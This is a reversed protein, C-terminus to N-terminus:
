GRAGRHDGNKRGLPCLLWWRRGGYTPQPAVLGVRYDMATGSAKYTLRLWAADPDILNAEYGIKAHPKSGRRLVM